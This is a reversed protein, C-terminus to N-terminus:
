RKDEKETSRRKKGVEAKALWFGIEDAVKISIRGRKPAGRAAMYM